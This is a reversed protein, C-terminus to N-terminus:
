NATFTFATVKMLRGHHARGSLKSPTAMKGGIPSPTGAVRAKGAEGDVHGLNNIDPCFLVIFHLHYKNSNVHLLYDLILHLKNM